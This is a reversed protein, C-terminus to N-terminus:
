GFPAYSRSSYQACGAGNGRVSVIAQKVDLTGPFINTGTSRESPQHKCFTRTLVPCQESPKRGATLFALGRSQGRVSLPRAACDSKGWQWIRNSLIGFVFESSNSESQLVLSDFPKEWPKIINKEWEKELFVPRHRVQWGRWDRIWTGYSVGAASCSKLFAPTDKPMVFNICICIVERPDITASKTIWNGM